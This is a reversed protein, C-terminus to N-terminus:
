GVSFVDDEESVFSFVSLSFALGGCVVSVVLTDPLGFSINSKISSSKEQNENKYGKLRIGKLYM